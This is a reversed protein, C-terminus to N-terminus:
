TRERDRSKGVRSWEVSYAAWCSKGRLIAVHSWPTCGRAPSRWQSTFSPASSRVQASASRRVLDCWESCLVGRSRRVAPPTRSRSSPANGRDHEHLRTRTCGRHIGLPPRRSSHTAHYERFPKVITVGHVM